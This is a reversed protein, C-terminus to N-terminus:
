KFLSMLVIRAYLDRLNVLKDNSRNVTKVIALLLAIWGVMDESFFLSPSFRFDEIKYDDPYISWSFREALRLLSEPKYFYEIDGGFNTFLARLRALSTTYDLGFASQFYHPGSYVQHGPLSNRLESFRDYLQFQVLNALWRYNYKIGPIDSSKTVKFKDWPPEQLVQVKDVISRDIEGPGRYEITRFDQGAINTQAFLVGTFHEIYCWLREDYDDALIVITSAKAQISAIKPLTKKFLEQDAANRSQPLCSFDIWYFSDRHTSAHQKLLVLHKGEPDPHASLWRHSVFFKPGEADKVLSSRDFSPLRDGCSLVSESTLFYVDTPSEEFRADAKEERVRTEELAVFSDIDYAVFTNRVWYENKKLVVRNEVRQNGVYFVVDRDGTLHEKLQDFFEAGSQSGILVKRGLRRDNVYFNIDDYKM